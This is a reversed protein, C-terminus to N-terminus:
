EDGSSESCSMSDVESLAGMAWVVSLAIGLSLVHLYDFVGHVAIAVTVAAAAARGVPDTVARRDFTTRLVACMLALYTVLGILGAQSAAQLYASHAHGRPIRFRWDPTIERFRDSFNGAGIGILPHEAWMRAAAGWHALREQAAWNGSTVLTGVGRASQLGLAGRIPEAGPAILLLMAVACGASLLWRGSGPRLLWVLTALGATMGLLGGRSQTMVATAVGATGTAFWFLPAPWKSGPGRRLLGVAGTALLPLAAIELYGALPNPEGFLAHVRFFGRQNFTAPGDASIIQAVAIASSVLIGAALGSLVWTRSARNGATSSALIYVLAAVGWRYTEAAWPGIAGANLVSLVLAGCYGLLLLAVPTVRVHERATAWRAAWAAVVAFLVLRTWTVSVPGVQAPWVDQLPVTAVLIALGIEPRKLSILGVSAFVVITLVSRPDTLSVGLAIAVALLIWASEVAFPRPELRIEDVGPARSSM